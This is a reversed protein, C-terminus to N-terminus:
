PAPEEARPLLEVWIRSREDDTLRRGTSGPLVRALAEEAAVLISDFDDFVRVERTKAPYDLYEWSRGEYSWTGLGSLDVGWSRLMPAPAALVVLGNSGDIWRREQHANDRQTEQNRDRFDTTDELAADLGRTQLTVTGDPPRSLPLRAKLEKIAARNFPGLDNNVIAIPSPPDADFPTPVLLPSDVLVITRERRQFAMAWCLRALLAAGSKSTIVHWTEHFFNTAFRAEESPRPTLITYELGDLRLSRRHVKLKAM